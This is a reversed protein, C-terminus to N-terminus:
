LRSVKNRSIDLIGAIEKNGLTNGDEDKSTKILEYIISENVTLSERSRLEKSSM